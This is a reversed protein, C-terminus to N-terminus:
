TNIDAGKDLLLKVINTHGNKSAIMLATFGNESSKVNFDAGKDL